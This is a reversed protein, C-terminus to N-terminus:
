NQVSSDTFGPNRWTGDEVLLSQETQTKFPGYVTQKLGKGFNQYTLYCGTCTIIRMFVMLVSTFLSVRSLIHDTDAMHLDEASQVLLYMGAAVLFASSMGFFIVLLKSENKASLYGFMCSVSAIIVVAFFLIFMEKQKINGSDLEVAYGSTLTFVAASIDCQLNVSLLFYFLLMTRLCKRLTEQTKENSADSDTNWARRRPQIDSIGYRAMFNKSRLFRWLHYIGFGGIFLAFPMGLILRIEKFVTRGGLAYDIIIYFTPPAVSLVLIMLDYPDEHKIGKVTYILAFCCNVAFIFLYSSDDTQFHDAIIGYLAFGIAVLLGVTSGVLYLREGASCQNCRRGPRM